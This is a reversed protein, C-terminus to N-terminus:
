KGSARNVERRWELADDLWDKLEDVGM